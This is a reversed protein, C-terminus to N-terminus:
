GSACYGAWGCAWGPGTSQWCSGPRGRPGRFWSQRGSQGGPQMLFRLLHLGRKICKKAHDAAHILNQFGALIKPTKILVSEKFPREVIFGWIYPTQAFLPTNTAYIPSTECSSDSHFGSNKNLNSTKFIKSDKPHRLNLAKNSRRSKALIQSYLYLPPQCCGVLMLSFNSYHHNLGSGKCRTPYGRARIKPLWVILLLTRHVCM